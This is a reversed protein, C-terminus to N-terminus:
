DSGGGEPAPSAESIYEGIAQASMKESMKTLMECSGPRSPYPRKSGKSRRFLPQQGSAARVKNQSSSVRMKIAPNSTPDRREGWARM